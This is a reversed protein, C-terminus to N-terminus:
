GIVLRRQPKSMRFARFTDEFRISLVNRLPLSAHEQFVNYLTYISTTFVWQRSTSETGSLRPGLMDEISDGGDDAMLRKM